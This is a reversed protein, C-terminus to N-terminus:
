NENRMREIAHLADIAHDFELGMYDDWSEGAFGVICDQIVFKKKRDDYIVRLHKINNFRGWVPYIM